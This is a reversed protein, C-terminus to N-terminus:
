TPHTSILQEVVADNEIAIGLGYDLFLGPVQDTENRWQLDITGRNEKFSGSVGINDKQYRATAVSNAGGAFGFGLKNQGNCQQIVLLSLLIFAALLGIITLKPKMEM